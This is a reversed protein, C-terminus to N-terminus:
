RYQYKRYRKWTKLDKYNRNHICHWGMPCIGYKQSAYIQWLIRHVRRNSCSDLEEKIRM